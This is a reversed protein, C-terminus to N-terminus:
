CGLGEKPYTAAIKSLLVMLETQRDTGTKAFVNKLTTRATEYSIRLESAAANLRLGNFLAVALRSEAPSLGFLTAVAERNLHLHRDPDVLLVLGWCLAEIAMWTPRSFLLLIPRGEARSITLPPPMVADADCVLQQIAKQLADTEYQRASRLRGHGIFLDAGLVTQAAQNTRLVRGSQDLIIAPNNALEFINLAADVREIDHTSIM